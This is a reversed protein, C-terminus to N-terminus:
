EEENTELKHGNKLYEDYAAQTALVYKMITEALESNDLSSNLLEVLAELRRQILDTKM